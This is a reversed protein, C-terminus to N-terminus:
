FLDEEKWNVDYSGDEMEAEAEARQEEYQQIAEELPMFGNGYIEAIKVLENSDYEDLQDQESSPVVRYLASIIAASDNTRLAERIPQRREFEAKNQKEQWEKKKKEQEEAILKELRAAEAEKEAVKRPKAKPFSIGAGRAYARAVDLRSSAAEARSPPKGSFIKNKAM